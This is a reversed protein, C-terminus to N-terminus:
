RAKHFEAPSQGLATLRLRDLAVMEASLRVEKAVGDDTFQLTLISGDYRWQGTVSTVELGWRSRFKLASPPMLEIAFVQGATVSALPEDLAEWEGAISGNTAARHQPAHPSFNADSAPSNVQQKQAITSDVDASEANKPRMSRIRDIVVFAVALILVGGILGAWAYLPRRRRLRRASGHRNSEVTAAEDDTQQSWAAPAFLLRCRPCDLLQGSTALRSGVFPLKCGPCFYVCDSM